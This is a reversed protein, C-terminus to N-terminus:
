GRRESMVIFLEWTKGVFYGNAVEKEYSIKKNNADKDM